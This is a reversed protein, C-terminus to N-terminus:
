RGALRFGASIQFYYNYWPAKYEIDTTAPSIGYYFRGSINIRGPLNAEAGLLVGFDFSRYNAGIDSTVGKNLDKQTANIKYSVQPGAVFSLNKHPQYRALVPLDAYTVVDRNHYWYDKWDSGKTSVLLESQFAFQRSFFYNCYGGGNLGIIFRSITNSENGPNRQNAVNIGGKLGYGFKPLPKRLYKTQAGTNTFGTALLLLIILSVVRKM